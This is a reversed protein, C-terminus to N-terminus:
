IVHRSIKNRPSPYSLGNRLNDKALVPKRQAIMRKRDEHQSSETDSIRLLVAASSKERVFMYAGAVTCLINVNGVCKHDNNKDQDDSNLEHNDESKFSTLAGHSEEKTKTGNNGQEWHPLEPM